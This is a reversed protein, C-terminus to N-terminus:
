CSPSMVPNKMFLKFQAAEKNEYVIHNKIIKRSVLKKAETEAQSQTSFNGFRVSYVDNSSKFSTADIGITKLKMNWRDAEVRAKFPGLQITFRPAPMDTFHIMGSEDEYRYIDAQAHGQCILLGFIGVFMIRKM